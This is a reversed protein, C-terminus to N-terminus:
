RKCNPNFRWKPDRGSKDVELLGRGHLRDIESKAKEFGVGAGEMVDRLSHFASNERLFNEVRSDERVKRARAAIREEEPNLERLAVGGEGQGLDDIAFAFEFPPHRGRGKVLVVEDEGKSFSLVSDAAADWEGSGRTGGSAGKTAHTILVVDIGQRDRLEACLFRRTIAVVEDSDNEKVTSAARGSDIFLIEAKLESVKKALKRQHDPRKLDLRGDYLFPIASEPYGMGMRLLRCYNIFTLSPMDIQIWVATGKRVQRGLFPMGSVISQTLTLAWWTKGSKWLGSINTIGSYLIGEVWAPPSDLAPERGPDNAIRVKFIDEDSTPPGLGDLEANLNQRMGEITLQGEELQRAMAKLISGARPRRVQEWLWGWTGSTVVGGQSYRNLLHDVLDGRGHAILDAQLDGFTEIRGRAGAVADLIERDDQQSHLLFRQDLALDLWSPDRELDWKHIAAKMIEVSAPGAGSLPISM